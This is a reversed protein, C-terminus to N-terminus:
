IQQQVPRKKGGCDQQGQTSEENHRLNTGDVGFQINRDTEGM